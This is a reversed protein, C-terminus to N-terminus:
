GPVVLAVLAFATVLILAGLSKMEKVGQWVRFQRWMGNIFSKRGHRWLVAILAIL